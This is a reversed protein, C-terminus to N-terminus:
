GSASRYQPPNFLLSWDREPAKTKVPGVRYWTSGKSNNCPSCAPRINGLMHAGGRSLPKVHDMTDKPGGCMWCGPYMSLRAELQEVTFAFVPVGFRRAKFRLRYNRDRLQLRSIKTDDPM